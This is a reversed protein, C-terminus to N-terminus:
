NMNLVNNNWTWTEITKLPRMFDEKSFLDRLNFLSLFVSLFLSPLLLIHLIFYLSISPPHSCSDIILHYNAHKKRGISKSYIYNMYLVCCYAVQSGIKFETCPLVIDGSWVCLVCECVNDLGFVFTNSRKNM